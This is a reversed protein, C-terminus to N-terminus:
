RKFGCTAPFASLFENVRINIEETELSGINL